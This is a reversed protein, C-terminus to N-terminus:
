NDRSERLLDIQDLQDLAAAVDAPSWPKREYNIMGLSKAATPREGFRFSLFFDQDADLMEVQTPSIRITHHVPAEEPVLICQAAIRCTSSHNPPSGHILRTDFLIATGASVPLSLLWNEELCSNANV